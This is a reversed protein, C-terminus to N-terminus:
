LSSLDLVDAHDEVQRIGKFSPHRLHGDHTWASFNVEAVLTPEVFVLNKGKIPVAPKDVRMGDLQVRLDRALKASFGTGVNGAYVLEDGRRAALLLSAISGRVKISPEYGIVAFTESAVCKIKLWDGTRGSRYPADKHKAIIGELGHQCAHRLMAEGDSDIEESLRIAGTEGELLKGLMHRRSSLELPTLDHGDFYLLDFAYFVAEKAARTAKRGGLARQLLGFNPLGQTDLVVAEGDLIMTSGLEKAADAISPFYSTWDHGGRTIIRVGTPEVHVALRYGDWKVEFAWEPGRPPKTKLLALCPEIREPMPDFPLHPAKKDFKPRPKGKVLEPGDVSLGISKSSKAAM